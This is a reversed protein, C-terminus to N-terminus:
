RSIKILDGPYILDPNALKNTKALEVWKYGDGYARVSIDWLSDGTKVSYSGEKISLSSQAEEIKIPKVDPIILTEGVLLFDPNEIKNAAVIDVWNYGSGYMKGSIDWLTDNEKVVYSTPKAIQGNAETSTSQTQGVQNKGNKIFSFILVAVVVVVVIGLFLSTYSEGWKIQSVSNSKKSSKQRPM